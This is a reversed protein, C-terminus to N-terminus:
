RETWFSFFTEASQEDFFACSYRNEYITAGAKYCWMRGKTDPFM